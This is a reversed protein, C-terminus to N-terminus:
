PPAPRFCFARRACRHPKAAPLPNTPPDSLPARGRPALKERRAPPAPSQRFARSAARCDALAALSVRHDACAPPNPRRQPIPERLAPIESATTRPTRSSAGAKEGASANTLAALQATLFLPLLAAASWLLSSTM